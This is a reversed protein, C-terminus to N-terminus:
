AVLFAVAKGILIWLGASAGGILPLALRWTLPSGHKAADQRSRPLAITPSLEDFM